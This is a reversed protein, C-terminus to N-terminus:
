RGDLFLLYTRANECFSMPTGCEPCPLAPPQSRALGDRHEAVGICMSGQYGCRDCEYPAHFSLVEADGRAEAIMNMQHVMAESCAELQVAVKRAGLTKLLLIWERVGVSNIFSVRRLNIVAPDALRGAIEVLSSREDIQGELCAHVAAAASSLEV